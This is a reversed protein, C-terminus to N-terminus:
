RKYFFDKIRLVAMQYFLQDAKVKADGSLNTIFIFYHSLFITSPNQHFYM